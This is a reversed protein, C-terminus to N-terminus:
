VVTQKTASQVQGSIVHCTICRERIDDTLCISLASMGTTKKGDSNMPIVHKQGKKLYQSAFPGNKFHTKMDSTMKNIVSTM